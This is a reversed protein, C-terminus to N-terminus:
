RVSWLWAISDAAAADVIQKRSVFLECWNIHAHIQLFCWMRMLRRCPRRVAVSHFMIIVVDDVVILYNQRNVFDVFVYHQWRDPSVLRITIRDRPLRRRWWHTRRRSRAGGFPWGRCRVLKKRTCIVSLLKTWTWRLCGLSRSWMARTLWVFRVWWMGHSGMAWTTRSPTLWTVCLRRASLMSTLIVSRCSMATVFESREQCEMLPRLSRSTLLQWLWALTNRCPNVPSISCEPQLSLFSRWLHWPCFMGWGCRGVNTM